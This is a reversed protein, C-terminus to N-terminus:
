KQPAGTSEKIILKQHTAFGAFTEVAGGPWRVEIRDVRDSKGLGFHLRTGWHSQYGRGSHVEAVQTRNGAVVTVRAGVGHSNSKTGQLEVQLWHHGTTSENRLLTPPADSNLVVADIDGDNDLDDFAAGRSSEVVKLGDGCAQSVNTFKGKGDNMFLFNAVRFATRDDITEIHDFHGCAVFLDRDADNDFDVFGTGWHVHPFIEPSIRATSTADEFLGGGLNRYLVPMESQYATVFLDMRGDNDYDGCDVGMSSNAKGNFNCAVGALMAREAFNGRGDNEFLFNPKGDNCVFVDTDGDDDYDFCVAGM